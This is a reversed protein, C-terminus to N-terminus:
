VLLSLSPSRFLLVGHWIKKEIRVCEINKGLSKLRWIKPLPGFYTKYQEYFFETSQKKKYPFLPDVGYRSSVNPEHHIYEGFITNCFKRYEITFLIFTHWVEDVLECKDIRELHQDELKRNTKPVRHRPVYDM